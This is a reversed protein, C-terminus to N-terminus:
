NLTVISNYISSAQVLVKGRFQGLSLKEKRNVLVFTFMYAQSPPLAKLFKKNLKAHGSNKKVRVSLLPKTVFLSGEIHGASVIIGLDGRGTWQLELDQNRPVISGGVPTVVQLGEPANISDEFIGLVLSVARWTVRQGPSISTLEKVYEVGGIINGFRRTREIMPAGNLQVGAFNMGTFGRRRGTTDNVPRSRDEFVVRSLVKTPEIGRASRTTISNLYMIGAFKDEDRPLIAASDIPTLERDTDTTLVSEIELVSDDDILEIEDPKQCGAVVIAMAIIILSLINPNKM